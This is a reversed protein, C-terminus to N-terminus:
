GGTLATLIRHIIGAFFVSSVNITLAILLGTKLGIEKCIAVINAFCPVFMTTLVVAIISQSYSLTGKEVMALIFGSGAEHRAVTLILADVMDIPLGLWGTVVPKLLIKLASLVGLADAAFLALAAILFIPVAEKLFWFLRFYTKKLLAMICPKRFPPLEQIFDSSVDDPLIKNLLVGIGIEFIVLLGVAIAFARLGLKGLIAMDLALQPACPIAFAILYIAIFKEKRSSLGRTMLTAMTKCGLGLVLPMIAKGTLGAKEFIRKSLVSLNPIYGIDELFGFVLFFMGLVPLVTCFANFLGLTLIGYNGVLFDLLMPHMPISSVLAVAPNVIWVTLLNAIFGAVHVVFFFTVAIIALLIPFGWVPHRSLAAMQALRGSTMHTKRRIVTKYINDSFRSQASLITRSINILSKRRWLETEQTFAEYQQMGTKQALYREFTHDHSLLLIAAERRYPIDESIVSSVSTIASETQSDFLIPNQPKSAGTIAEKIERVPRDYLSGSKVVHLGLLASIALADINIGRRRADDTATICLLMPVSLASLEATLMLSSKLRLADAVQIIVDPQIDFILDRVVAEEESHIYLSHIGPTDILTWEEGSIRTVSELSEVTTNPYNAVLGYTGSLTNCLTTKGSNPLGVVLAKKV